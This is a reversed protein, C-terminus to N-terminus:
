TLLPCTLSRTSPINPPCSRSCASSRVLLDRPYLQKDRQEFIKSMFNKDHKLRKLEGRIQALPETSPCPTIQLHEPVPQRWAGNTRQSAWCYDARRASIGDTRAAMTHDRLCLCRLPRSECFNIFGVQDLRRRIYM